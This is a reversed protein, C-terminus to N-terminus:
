YLVLKGGELTSLIQIPLLEHITSITNSKVKVYMSVYEVKCIIFDKCVLMVCLGVRPTLIVVNPQPLTATIHAQNLWKSTSKHCTFTSNLHFIVMSVAVILFKALM